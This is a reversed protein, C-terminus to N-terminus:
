GLMRIINPTLSHHFREVCQSRNRLSASCSSTCTSQQRCRCQDYLLRLPHMFGKETNHFDFATFQVEFELGPPLIAGACGQRDGATSLVNLTSIRWGACKIRWALTTLHLDSVSFESVSM